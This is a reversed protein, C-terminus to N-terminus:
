CCEIGSFNLERDTLVKFLIPAIQREEKSLYSNRSSMALGDSERVTPVIVVETPINLDRAMQQIVICQIGDKQGFYAKDPQTINFLKTVVTAVGRFHGPRSKGERTTEEINEINVFTKYGKPYMEEESPFFVFDVNEKKLLELDRELSRPYRSL